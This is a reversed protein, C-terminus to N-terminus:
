VRAAMNPGRAGPAGGASGYPGDTYKGSNLGFLGYDVGRLGWVFYFLFVPGLLLDLIGYWIMEGTPSVVNGGECCGWAIPYIMTLLAVFGAGRIYGSRVGGGANFTSRPGHGLLVAWIYALAAVGLVFFGWKYTSPTLAGCLGCVVVVWAFFGTTLIDSITLGTSFLLLLILLPFTIFWQIYRVFFIQRAFTTGRSFEAIVPTAGLDSAM